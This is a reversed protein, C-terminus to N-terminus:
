KRPKRSQANGVHGAHGVAKTQSNSSLNSSIRRCAPVPWRGTLLEFAAEAFSLSRGNIRSVTTQGIHDDHSAESNDWSSGGNHCGM